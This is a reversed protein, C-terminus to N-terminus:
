PVEEPPESYICRFGLYSTSWNSRPPELRYGRSATALWDRGHMWSGGRVIHGPANELLCAPDDLGAATWCPDDYPYAADLVWESVGGAMGILGLPTVDRDERIHVSAPGFGPPEQGVCAGSYAGVLEDWKLLNPENAPDVYNGFWAHKCTPPDATTEEWPYSVEGDRGAAAAAYEWQAETPLDGGRAQCYARAADRSICTIALEEREPRPDTSWSCLSSGNERLVSGSYRALDYENADPTGIEVLEPHDELTKRYEPVTVEHRDMWFSGIRAIREPVTRRPPLRGAARPDGLIMAGSPVCVAKGDTPAGDCGTSPAFTGLLPEDVSGDDVPAMMAPLLDNEIAVCTLAMEVDLTEGPVGDFLRAMTGVCDGRLVIDHRRVTASVLELAVLRDITLAPEPESSPTRDEGDIRLRPPPEDGLPAEDPEEWRDARAVRVRYDLHPPDSEATGLFITYQGPELSVARSSMQHSPAETSGSRNDNCAIQSEPAACESRIFLMTDVPIRTGLPPYIGLMEFRYDGAEEILVHAGTVAFPTTDCGAEPAVGTVVGRLGQRLQFTAPPVVVNAEECLQELSTPVWPPEYAEPAVYREGRYDRVRGVPYARLRMLVRHTEGPDRSVISFSLPWMDARPTALDRSEYWGDEDYLDLRFASVIGPVPMDTHVTVIAEAHPDILKGGCGSGAGLAVALAAAHLRRRSSRRRERIDRRGTGM